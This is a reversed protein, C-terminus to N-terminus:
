VDTVLCMTGIDRQRLLIDKFWYTKIDNQRFFWTRRDLFSHVETQFLRNKQRVKNIYVGGRLM